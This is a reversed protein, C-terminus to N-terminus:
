KTLLQGLLATANAARKLSQGINALYSTNPLPTSLGIWRRMFFVSGVLSLGTSADHVTITAKCSYTTYASKVNCGLLDTVAGLCTGVDFVWDVLFSFPIIEWAVVLPNALGYNQLLYLNPNTIEVTGGMECRGYTAFAQPLPSSWFEKGRGRVPGSPVPQSLVNLATYVDQLLPAWGFSYELWLSSAQNVILKGDRLYRHKRKAKLKLSRLFARFRGRRLLSFASRLTGMRKAIMELSERWEAMTVGLSAPGSRIAEVLNSWAKNRASPFPDSYSATYYSFYLNPVDVDPIPSGSPPYIPTVLPFRGRLCYYITPNVGDGTTGRQTAGIRRGSGNTSILWSDRSLLSM